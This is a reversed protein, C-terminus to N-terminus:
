IRKEEEIKGNESSKQKVSLLRYVTAMSIGLKDAITSAAVGDAKMRSIERTRALGIYTKPKETWPDPGGAALVSEMEKEIQQQAAFLKEWPLNAYAHLLEDEGITKHALIMSATEADAIKLVRTAATKRLKNFSYPRFDPKDKRVRKILRYWINSVGDSLHGSKTGHWVPKGRETVFVVDGYDESAVKIRSRKALWWKLGEKTPTWLQHKTDNGTKFRIGDILDRDFNLFGVRLQGIESAAFACNLGLLLLLREIPLAYEFLVKLEEDSIVFKDRTLRKQYKEEPALEDPTRRISKFRRPLMWGFDDAGDLWDFFNGLEKIINKTAAPTMRKKLKSRLTLPRKRFVGYIEDCRGYNLEALDLVLFNRGGFRPDSLYNRISAVQDLKTRGWPKLFDNPLTLAQRVHAEYGDMAKSLSVGTAESLGQSEALKQRGEAVNSRIEDIGYQYVVLDTAEFKTGTAQSIKAVRSVYKVPDELANGSRTPLSPQKGKAIAKAAELHSHDWSYGPSKFEAIQEWIAAILNLRKEAEGLDYGLCFKEPVGRSNQGVYRRYMGDKSRKLKKEYM